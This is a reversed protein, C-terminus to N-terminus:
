GRPKRREGRETPGRSCTLFSLGHQLRSIPKPACPHPAPLSRPVSHTHCSEGPQMRLWLPFCLCSSISKGSTVQPVLPHIYGCVYGDM